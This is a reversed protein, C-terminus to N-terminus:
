LSGRADKSEIRVLTPDHAVVIARFDTDPYTTNVLFLPRSKLWEAYSGKCATAQATIV